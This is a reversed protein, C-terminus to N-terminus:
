LNTHHFSELMLGETFNLCQNKLKKTLPGLKGTDIGRHIYVMWIGQTVTHLVRNIWEALIFLTIFSIPSQSRIFLFLVGWFPVLCIHFSLVFMLVGYNHSIIFSVSFGRLQPSLSGKCSSRVSLVSFNSLSTAPQSLYPHMEASVNSGFVKIDIQVLSESWRKVVNILWDWLKRTM